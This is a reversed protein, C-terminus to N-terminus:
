FFWFSKRLLLRSITHVFNILTKRSSEATMGNISINNLKFIIFQFHMRLTFFVISINRYLCNEEQETRVTSPGQLFSQVVLDYGM